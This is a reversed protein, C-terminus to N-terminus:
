VLFLWEKKCQIKDKPASPLKIPIIASKKIVFPERTDKECVILLKM